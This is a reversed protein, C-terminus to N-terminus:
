LAALNNLSEAVLLSHGYFAKERIELARKIYEESKNYLGKNLYVLGLLDLNTATDIHGPALVEETIHLSRRAFEEAKKTSVM